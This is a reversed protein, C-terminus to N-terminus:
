KAALSIEYLPLFRGPVADSPADGVRRAGEREYFGGANPDALVTLRTAGRRRAEAIAHALLMRGVGRRLDEPRVFLKNLDLTGSPEGPALAVVGTIGGANVAVWVDGRAIEERGVALAPRVLAMFASEYGWSAKSRACIESLAEAEEVRAPRIRCASM